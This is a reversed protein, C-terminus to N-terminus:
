AREGLPHGIRHALLKRKAETEHGAGNRRIVLAMSTAGGIYFEERSGALGAEVLVAKLDMEPSTRLWPNEAHM